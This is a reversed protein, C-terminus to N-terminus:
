PYYSNGGPRYSDDKKAGGNKKRRLASIVAVVLVIAIVILLIILFIASGSLTRGFVAEMDEIVVSIPIGTEKTFESLASGLASPTFSFNETRNYVQSPGDSVPAGQKLCSALELDGIRTKLAGIVNALDRDLSYAYYDNVNSLVLGGFVSSGDGFLNYVGDAVGNGVWAICDYGDAEDNVLFAILINSEYADGTSGYITRYESNVYGQFEAEGYGITGGTALNSIGGGILNVILIGLILILAVPLIILSALGGLCGGGYGYYPRRWGWGFGFHPWFHHHHHPPRHFGGGGFGGGRSGGGFGGGGGGFGGGRSGGSFGGGRGGGGPGPM